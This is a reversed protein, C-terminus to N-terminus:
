ERNGRNIRSALPKYFKYGARHYGKGEYFAHAERRGTASTLEMRQCGRDRAIQEIRALLASGIGQGRYGDKVVFATIKCLLEGRHFYAMFHISAVATVELGSQVLLIEDADSASVEKLRRSAESAGTPYGLQGLLLAIDAADAMDATRITFNGPPAPEDASSM